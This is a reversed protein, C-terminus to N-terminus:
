EKLVIPIQGMELSKQFLVTLPKALSNGGNKLLKPLMGDPGAGKNVNISRLANLVDTEEIECDYSDDSCGNM